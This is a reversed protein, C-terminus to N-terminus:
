VYLISNALHHIFFVSFLILISVRLTCSPSLAVAVVHVLSLARVDAAALSPLLKKDVLFQLGKKPSENFQEMGELLLRKRERVESLTGAAPLGPVGRSHPLDMRAEIGQGLAILSDLATIHITLLRNEVPFAQESLMNVLAACVDPCFLHCDYNLYLDEWFCPLRCLQM